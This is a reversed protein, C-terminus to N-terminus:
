TIVKRLYLYGGLVGFCINPIWVMLLPNSEVGAGLVESVKLFFVYAFMLSIGLALNLGTGGRKKKSALVVGILTLIYSSIPLSTRKHLEVLYANLNKVGRKESKDIFAALDISNMEKAKFDATILDNPRFDFLTDFAAKTQIIDEEQLLKRIRVDTLQYQEEDENWKVRKALIKYKLENNDFKEYAFHSGTSSRTNYKKIFVFSNENLQLNSNFLLHPNEYKKKNLHDRSFEIFKKNSYPLVFHNMGLGFLVILTSGIFYPQLFRTFSIKASHIAIIETNSALKTTFFIVALFLALPLFTNGFIVIFNLYYDKLITLFSLSENSLFKDVKESLDIAISIPILIGLIL